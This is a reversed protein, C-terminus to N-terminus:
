LPFIVRHYFKLLCKMVLGTTFDFDQACFKGKRVLSSIDKIIHICEKFDAVFLQFRDTYTDAMAKGITCDSEGQYFLVSIDVDDAKSQYDDKKNTSLALYISRLACSFLNFCRDYYKANPFEISNDKNDIDITLIPVVDDKCSSYSSCIKNCNKNLGYDPLWENIGTGGIAVPILGTKYNLSEDVLESYRSIFSNGPGYGLCM